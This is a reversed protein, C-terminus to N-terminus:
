LHWTDRRVPYYTFELQLRHAVVQGADPLVAFSHQRTGVFRRSLTGSSRGRAQWFLCPQARSIGSFLLPIHFGSTLLRFGSRCEVVPQGFLRISDAYAFGIFNRSRAGPKKSRVRVFNKYDSSYRYLNGVRRCAEQSFMEKKQEDRSFGQRDFCLAPERSIFLSAASRRRIGAWLVFWRKASARRPVEM